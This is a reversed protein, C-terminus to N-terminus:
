SLMIEKESVGTIYKIDSYFVTEWFPFRLRHIICSKQKAKYEIPRIATRFYRCVSAITVSMIIIVKITYQYQWSCYWWIMNM